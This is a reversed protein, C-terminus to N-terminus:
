FELTGLKIVAFYKSIYSKFVQLSFFSSIQRLGIIFVEEPFPNFLYLSVVFFLIFYEIVCRNRVSM